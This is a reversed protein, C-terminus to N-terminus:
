YQWFPRGPAALGKSPFALPLDRGCTIRTDIPVRNSIHKFGDGATSSDDAIKEHPLPRKGTLSQASELRSCALLPGFSRWVSSFATGEEFSVKSIGKDSLRLQLGSDYIVRKFLVLKGFHCLVLLWKFIRILCDGMSCLKDFVMKIAFLVNRRSIRCKCDPEDGSSDM